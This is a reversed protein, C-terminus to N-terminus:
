IKKRQMMVFEFFNEEKFYERAATIIDKPTLSNIFKNIRSLEVWEYGFRYHEYLKEMIARNSMGRGSPNYLFKLWGLSQDLFDITVPNTKLTSIIQYYEKRLDEVEDPVGNFRASIEFQNLNRNFDSGASVNYLSYGKVFRLDWLKRNLVGALAEARIKEKWDGGNRVRRIFIPKYLMNRKKYYDPFYFCTYVPGSINNYEFSNNVGEFEENRSVPLNGLYKNIVPIVSDVSFDGTVIFTFNEASGFLDQYIEYGRMMDTEEIGKYEETGNPVIHIGFFNRIKNDLDANKVDLLPFEYAQQEQKKWEEFASFEIRPQTCYAYIVQLMQEIDKLEADLQIGSELNNVYLNIGHWWLSNSTLYREFDHKDLEGLGAEKVFEPSNVASFYEEKPFDLAGKPRFGKIIIRKQLVESSPKFSKLVVKVGNQLIIERAGAAEEWDDRYKGIKLKKVVSDRLVSKPAKSPSYPSLPIKLRDNIWSRVEMESHAKSASLIGIDEPSNLNLSNLFNQFDKLNLKQFWKHLIESKHPPLAEGYIFHDSIERLWYASNSTDVAKFKQIEEKKIRSWEEELPGYEIVQDVIKLSEQLAKKENGTKTSIEVKLSSPAIDTKFTHKIQTKFSNDYFQSRESFRKNLLNVLTQNLYFKKVGEIKSIEKEMAQDRFFLEISVESKGLSDKKRVVEAFHQPRQFFEERCDPAEPHQTNVLDSFKSKIENKLREPDKIEGVITIAIRSPQYFKKHFDDLVQVNMERQHELFKSNDENCPVMETKLQNFPLNQELNDGNRVIHEQILARKVHEFDKQDFKLGRVINQFWTLGAELAESSGHPADFTYETNEFGAAGNVDYISMGLDELASHIGNPFNETSEFAMHELAHAVNIENPDQDNIGALVELKLFITSQNGAINKIFYRLGNKLKGQVIDHNLGVVGTQGSSFSQAALRCSSQLILLFLFMFLRYMIQM